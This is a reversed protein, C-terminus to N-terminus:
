NIENQKLFFFGCHKRRSKKKTHSKGSRHWGTRRLVGPPPPSRTTPLPADGRGESLGGKKHRLPAAFEVRKREEEKKKKQEV